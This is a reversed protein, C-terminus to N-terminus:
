LFHQLIIDVSTACTYNEDLFRRSNIRMASLQENNLVKRLLSNFGNIDGSQCWFGFKGQEIIPGIDTNVDTAAIVPLSYEMYSLLRSPFNPITFRKDLFILGVDSAQVLEEYGNKPLMEILKVNEIGNQEISRELLAYETGAGVILFFVDINHKNSILIDLLFNIGQPKGLNGGYLLLLRDTPLGNKNRINCKSEYTIGNLCKPTISNPCVETKEISLEPNNRLLYEVNKPSMCGIYDSLGYLKKEKSRFYKYILSSEKILNLDVANQPFIDKLLLYTRAKYVKKCYNIVRAFTVPPTSYMVLDFPIDKYYKKIASIYQQDILITALGKEFINTKQLNLSKVRLINVGRELDLSTNKRCRRERSTVVYVEHGKKVFEQMLDSYLNTDNEPYVITLFLINM